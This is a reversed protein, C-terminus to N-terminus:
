CCYQVKNSACTGNCSGKSEGGAIAELELDSLEPMEMARLSLLDQPELEFGAERAIVLAEDVSTAAALRSKLVPDIRVLQALAKLNEESM